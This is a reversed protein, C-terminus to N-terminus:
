VVYRKTNRENVYIRLWTESVLAHNFDKGDTTLTLILDKDDRKAYELLLEYIRNPIEIELDQLHNDLVGLAHFVAKHATEGERFSVNVGSVYYLKNRYSLILHRANESQTQVQEVM